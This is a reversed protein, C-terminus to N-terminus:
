AVDSGDSVCSVCEATRSESAVHPILRGVTEDYCADTDEKTAHIAGRSGRRTESEIYAGRVVKAAFVFDEELAIRREGELRASADRLYMQFTQYLVPHPRLPGPTNFERMLERAILDIALQRHTEEADMLLPIHARDAAQWFLVAM